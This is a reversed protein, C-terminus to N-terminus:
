ESINTSPHMTTLQKWRTLTARLTLANDIVLVKFGMKRLRRHMTKQGKRPEEGPAKMEVFRVHGGPLLVQRDPWHTLNMKICKGGLKKVGKYFTTELSAEVLAM